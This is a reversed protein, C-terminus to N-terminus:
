RLLTTCTAQGVADAARAADSVKVTTAAMLTEPRM